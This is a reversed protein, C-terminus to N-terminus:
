ESRRRSRGTINVGAKRWQGVYSWFTSEALKKGKSKEYASVRAIQREVQDSAAAVLDGEPDSSNPDVGYIKQAQPQSVLVCQCRWKCITTGSGPTGLATWQGMNKLQGHREICTRCSNVGLAYWMYLAKSGDRDNEPRGFVVRDRARTLFSKQTAQIAHDLKASVAAFGAGNREDFQEVLQSRITSDNIGGDRMQTIISLVDSIASVSSEEVNAVWQAIGPNDLNIELTLDDVLDVVPKKKAM